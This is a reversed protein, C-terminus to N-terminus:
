PHNDNEIRVSLLPVPCRRFMKEAVSGFRVSPLNTRGKTGMVVLDIKEDAVIKILEWFPIGQRIVKKVPLEPCSSNQLLKEIGKLRDQERHEIFEGVTMNGIQLAVKELADVDRQNFINAVIIEAELSTALNCAYTLTQASYESLDIAVLIKKIPDM